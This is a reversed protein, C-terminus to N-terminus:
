GNAPELALLANAVEVQMADTQDQLLGQILARDEPLGAIALGQLTEFVVVPEPDALGALLARHAQKLARNPIQGGARAWALYRSLAWIAQQRTERDMALTAEIAPEPSELGRSVEVMRAYSRVADPGGTRARRLLEEAVPGHMEAVYDLAELRREVDPDGLADRFLAEGRPSGLAILAVAMPLVLEEEVREVGTELAPILAPLGSRGCDLFFPVELPFDGRAVADVLRAEADADGMRAAALALPAARWHSHEEALAAQVVPLTRTDEVLALEMAAAGRVYVAVEPRAVTAVLLEASQPEPLRAALASIAARQVSTSPDYLARPGWEGGGPEASHGILLALARARVGVDISAAGRTLAAMPDVEGQTVSPAAAIEPPTTRACGALAFLALFPVIRSSCSPM